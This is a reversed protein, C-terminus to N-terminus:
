NSVIKIQFEMDDQSSLSGTTLSTEVIRNQQKLNMDSDTRQSMDLPRLSSASFIMRLAALIFLVVIELSVSSESLISSFGSFLYLKMSM